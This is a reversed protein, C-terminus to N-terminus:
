WTYSKKLIHAQASDEKFYYKKIGPIYHHFYEEWNITKMDFELTGHNIKMEKTKSALRQINTNEFEWQRKGFYSMMLLVNETKKYAKTYIMKKGICFAMMDM